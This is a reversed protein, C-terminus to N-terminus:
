RGERSSEEMKGVAREDEINTRNLPSRARFTTWDAASREFMTRAEQSRHLSAAVRGLGASARARERFLDAWSPADSLSQNATEWATQFARSASELQGARLLGAGYDNLTAAQLVRDLLYAPDREAVKAISDAATQLQAVCGRLDGKACLANGIRRHMQSLNRQGSSDSEDGASVSMVGEVGARAEALAADLQGLELFVLSRGDRSAAMGSQFSLDAPMADLAQQEARRFEEYAAAAEPLKGMDALVLAQLAITRALDHQAQPRSVETSVMIPMPVTASSNVLRGLLGASIDLQKASESLAGAARLTRGAAQHLIGAAQLAAMSGAERRSWGDADGAYRMALEAADAPNNICLALNYAVALRLVEVGNDQPHRQWMGDLIRLATQFSKRAGQTDGLSQNSAGSQVYGMRYYGGALELLLSDNQPHEAELGDLYKLATAVLARRAGVTGPLHRISDHVEFIVSRAMEQVDRFHQEAERQRMKAVRASDVAVATGTVLAVVAISLLAVARAHRRVYKMTRYAASPPRISIPYGARYRDLDALLQEVSQYRQEPDKALAQLVIWDLDGRIARRRAAAARPSEGTSAILAESPPRPNDGTVKQVMDELTNGAHPLVGALLEYLLSGLAYVDTAATVPRGAIQEPAAYAPTFRPTTAAAPERALLNAIGFDLLKVLGDNTVLINAPKLDSHVILHRHAFQVAQCVQEFLALTQPIDLHKTRRYEDLPLGEVYEVALWPIRDSTTGWDMLTAINPHQLRSLARREITLLQESQRDYAVYRLLKLAVRRHFEDDSREALFVIGAGGRGLESLIRYPGVEQPPPAAEVVPVDLTVAMATRWQPSDHERLLSQLEGALEPSEQDLRDLIEQVRAPGAELAIGFWEKLRAWESPNV